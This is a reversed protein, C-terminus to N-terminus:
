NNPYHYIVGKHDFKRPVPDMAPLLNQTEDERVNIGEGSIAGKKMTNILSISQNKENPFAFLINAVWLTYYDPADQWYAKIETFKWAKYYGIKYKVGDTPVVVNEIWSEAVGDNVTLPSLVHIGSNTLQLFFFDPGVDFAINQDDGTLKRSFDWILLRGIQTGQATRGSTEAYIDVSDGELGFYTVSGGDEATKQVGGINIHIDTYTNNIITLDTTPVLVTIYDAMSVLNSGGKNRVDLSVDFVGPTDYTIVPNQDTAMSPTGGEFTWHWINPDNSSLDSFQVSEGATITTEDSTFAATPEPSCSISLAAMLTIATIMQIHLAKRMSTVM